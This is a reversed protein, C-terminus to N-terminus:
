YRGKEKLRKKLVKKVDKLSKLQNRPKNKITSAPNKKRQTVPTYPALNLLEHLLILAIDKDLPQNRNGCKPSQICSPCGETCPCDKVAKLTIFLLDTIKEYGKEALGIGGPIADYVFIAPSATDVHNEASVGGLDRRDCMALLPLMAISAHEVAHLGGALDWEQNKISQVTAQPPIIWFGMSELTIPPLDLGSGMGLICKRIEDIEVWNHVTETVRVEGFHITAGSVLTKSLEESIIRIDVNVLPETYYPSESEVKRTYAINQDLDLEEVLYSIGFHLYIANPHVEKLAKEYEITGLLKNSGKEIIKVQTPSASRIKVDKAPYDVEYTIVWEGNREELYNEEVLTDLYDKLDDGLYKLDALTISNEFAACLVHGLLIHPNYPNIVANEVPKQFFEAPHNMFYQDLPDASGILTILGERDRRGARGAQQWTSSITGPYGVIICADLQGVDIGLELANTSVVGLLEGNFLKKEIRRRDEPFYGARYSMIRNLFAPQQRFDRRAWRLILEAMKRSRTFTINQLNHIVHKIFLMEGEGFASKRTNTESGSVDKTSIIPPNWFVFKRPGRVAGDNDVLVFEKNFLRSALENPNAITASCAIIQPKVGYSAAIRLLRRFVNAVNSGFVGRYIHMEDAIIYRLRRFFHSWLRAHHPLIAYHIEDPNTILVQPLRSRIARKQATSVDGDYVEVRLRSFTSAATYERIKELQNRALAKLPFIFLSTFNPTQLFNELIPITYCLTKGSSTSTAIVVNEGKRIAEIADVQHSFLQTIQKKQLLETIKRPIPPYISKYQAEKESLEEIHVIQGEYHRDRQLKRLFDDILIKKTM